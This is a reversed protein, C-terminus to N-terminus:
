APTEDEQKDKPLYVKKFIDPIDAPRIIKKEVMMEYTTLYLMAIVQNANVSVLETGNTETFLKYNIRCGARDLVINAFANDEFQIGFNGLFWKKFAAKLCNKNVKGTLLKYVAKDTDTRKYKYTAKIDAVQYKKLQIFMGLENEDLADLKTIDKIDKAAQMCAVKVFVKSNVYNLVIDIKEIRRNGSTLDIKNYKKM